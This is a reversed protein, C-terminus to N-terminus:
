RLRTLRSFEQLVMLAKLDEGKFIAADSKRVVLFRDHLVGYFVGSGDRLADIDYSWGIDAARLAEFERILYIIRERFRQEANANRIQLAGAIIERTRLTLIDPADHSKTECSPAPPAALPPSAQVGSAGVLM